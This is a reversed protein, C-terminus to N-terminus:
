GVRGDRYQDKINANFFKGISSSSKFQYYLDESVDYYLWTNGNKFEVELTSTTADYGLSRIMSSEVYERYM